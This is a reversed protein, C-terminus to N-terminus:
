VDFTAGFRGPTYGTATRFSRIFHSQDAYASHDHSRLTRQLRLVKLFDHPALGTSHKLSRQLQRPSLCAASAMDAVSAVDDVHAFIRAIAPEPRVLGKEALWGVFRSLVRQQAAFDLGVLRRAVERFPLDGRYGDEVPGEGVDDGAWAGPMLRVNTFHFERGLDLEQSSARLRTAGCIRPDRQDFILYTCADPLAHFRYDEDLEVDTRLSVFRHVLHGLAAPPAAEVFTVVAADRAIANGAPDYM